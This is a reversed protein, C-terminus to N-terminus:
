EGCQEFHSRISDKAHSSISVTDRRPDISDGARAIL